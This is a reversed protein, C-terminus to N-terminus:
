KKVQDSVVLKYKKEGDRVVKFKTEKIDEEALGQFNHEKTLLEQEFSLPFFAVMMSPPFPLKLAEALSRVSQPQNDVWFIHKLKGLEEYSVQRPVAPKKSLDLLEFQNQGQPLPIAVIAKFYELQKLYDAGNETNFIMTWRLVRKQRITM